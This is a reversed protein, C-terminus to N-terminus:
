MDWTQAVAGIHNAHAPRHIEIWTKYEGFSLAKSLHYADVADKLTTRHAYDLFIAGYVAGENDGGRTDFDDHPQVTTRSLIGVQGQHLWYNNSVIEAEVFARRKDPDATRGQPSALFESYRQSFHDMAELYAVLTTTRTTLNHTGAHGNLRALTIFQFYESTTRGRADEGLHSFHLAHALESPILTPHHDRSGFLRDDNVVHILPYGTSLQKPEVFSLHRVIVLNDPYVIEIRRAQDKTARLDRLRGLPFDSDNFPAFQRHVEEYNKM